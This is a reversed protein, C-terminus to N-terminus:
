KGYLEQYKKKNKLVKYVYERTEPFPIEEIETVDGTWGYQKIWQTVNGRGGNYAAILLVENNNFQKHLSSLYWTGFRINTEPDSLSQATFGSFDIQGAIWEGTEPMLQMLGTAGKPSRAKPDFKSEARIVAVVLYPNVNYELAYRYVYEQYPFPYVYQKQFWETHYITFGLSAAAIMLVAVFKLRALLRQLM